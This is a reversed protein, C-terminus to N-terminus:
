LHHTKLYAKGFEYSGVMIACSPAVKCIRPIIGRTLGAVGEERSIEMLHRLISKKPEHHHLSHVQQRTKAVDFPTTLAAAIMGSSAGAMFSHVFRNSTSRDADGAASYLRRFQEFGAWYIASFPVDRWLTPVLGKYLVRPGNQRVAHLIEEAVKLVNGEAGRHQMKTKLLEIPSILSVAAIRALSGALLPALLPSQRNFLANNNRSGGISPNLSELSDKIAEYGVFYVVTAPIAMLLTPSLGRWLGALGEHRTIQLVGDLTGTIPLRLGPPRDFIYLTRCGCPEVHDYFRSCFVYSTKWDIRTTTPRRVGNEQSQMRVKVVDLPTVVLSTILAGISASLSKEFLNTSYKARTIERKTGGDLGTYSSSPFNSPLSSPINEAKM